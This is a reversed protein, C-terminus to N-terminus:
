SGLHRLLPSFLAIQPTRTYNFPHMSALTRPRNHWSVNLRPCIYGSEVLSLPYGRYLFVPVHWPLLFTHRSYRKFSLLALILARQRSHPHILFTLDAWRVPTLSGLFSLGFSNRCRTSRQVCPPGSLALVCWSPCRFPPLELLYLCISTANNSMLM